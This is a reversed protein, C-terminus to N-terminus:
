PGGLATYTGGAILYVNGYADTTTVQVNGNKGFLPMNPTGNPVSLSASGGVVTMVGAVQPYYVVPGYYTTPSTYKADDYFTVTLVSGDPLDIGGLQVALARYTGLSNFSVTAVGAAAPSLVSGTVAVPYSNVGKLPNTSTGGGGGGGGGSKQAWAPSAEGLALGCIVAALGVSRWSFNMASRRNIAPESFGSDPVPM